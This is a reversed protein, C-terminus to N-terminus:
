NMCDSILLMGLHNWLLSSCMSSCQYSGDFIWYPYPVASLIDRDNCFDRVVGGMPKGSGFAAFESWRQLLEPTRAYYMTPGNNTVENYGGIDSHTIAHGTLGSSLAGTLASTLGDYGDWSVLQDGLWFVPVSLSSKTWASRTFFLVDSYDKGAEVIAEANLAAWAQPYQNHYSAASIGSFLMADFPLYEGFDCMWGSSQAELIMQRIIISKMWSRAKPNTPDLMCFEISLSKMKYPTGDANRVFYTVNGDGILGEQYYNNKADAFGTPDSFFPSIYTLVKTGDEDWSNTMNRWDPYYDRNLEWNWILRDGDWSHRMGVWDQLWVGGLEVGNGKLRSVLGTVNTTGGELGVIAGKQSWSPLSGSQRGTVGTILEILDFWNSAMMIRGSLETTWSYIEIESQNAAILNFFTVESNDLILSRNYDTLYVPKPAYTTFRCLLLTVLLCSSSFEM